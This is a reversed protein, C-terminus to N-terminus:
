KNEVSSIPVVIVQRQLTLLRVFRWNIDIVQGEIVQDESNGVRLWDGVRFPRQLLLAEEFLIVYNIRKGPLNKSCTNPM